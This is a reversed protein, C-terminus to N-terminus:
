GKIYTLVFVMCFCDCYCPYAISFMFVSYGYVCCLTIIEEVHTIQAYVYLFIDSLVNKHKSPEM